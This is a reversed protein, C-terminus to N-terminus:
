QLKFRHRTLRSGERLAALCVPTGSEPATRGHPRASALSDPIITTLNSLACPPHRPAPLRLLAYFAAILRPYSGILNQDWSERIPCGLDLPCGDRSVPPQICYATLALGPFQFMKTGPPSSLLHSEGLLPSRFPILGFGGEPPPQPGSCVSVVFAPKTSPDPFTRWLPHFGRLYFARARRETVWLLATSTSGRAFCPPGDGM